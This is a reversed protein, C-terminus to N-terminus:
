KLCKNTDACTQLASFLTKSGAPLKDGCKTFCSKDTCNSTCFAASACQV